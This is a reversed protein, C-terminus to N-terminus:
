IYEFYNLINSISYSGDPLEFKDNWAPVSIKFKSNNYSKKIKKWYITLNCIYYCKIFCTKKKGRRLDTKDTLNLILVHPKSTESNESNM